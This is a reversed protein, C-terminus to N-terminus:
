GQEEDIADRFHLALIGLINLLMGVYVKREHRIDPFVTDLYDCWASVMMNEILIANLFAIQDRPFPRLARIVVQCADVQRKAAESPGSRPGPLGTMIEGLDRPSTYGYNAGDVAERLIDAAAIHEATIQSGQVRAMRQLSCAVQWNRVERPKYSANPRVDDPDVWAGAVVATRGGARGQRVDPPDGVSIRHSMRRYPHVTSGTTPRKVDHTTLLLRAGDPEPAIRQVGDIAWVSKGSRQQKAIFDGVRPDEGEWPVKLTTVAM